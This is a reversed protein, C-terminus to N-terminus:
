LSIRQVVGEAVNARIRSSLEATRVVDRMLSLGLREREKEVAPNPPSATRVDKLLVPTVLPIRAAVKFGLRRLLARM